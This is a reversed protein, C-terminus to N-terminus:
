QDGTLPASQRLAQSQSRPHWPWRIRRYRGRRRAAPPRRGPMWWAREGASAIKNREELWEELIQGVLANLPVERQMEGKGMVVLAGKRTLM